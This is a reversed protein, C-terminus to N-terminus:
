KLIKMLELIQKDPRGGHEILKEILKPLTVRVLVGTSTVLSTLLEKDLDRFNMEKVLENIHETTNSYSGLIDNAVNRATRELKMSQLSDVEKEASSIDAIDIKQERVKDKIRKPSNKYRFLHTHIKGRRQERSKQFAGLLDKQEEKDPFQSLAIGQWVPIHDRKGLQGYVKEVKELISKDLNFSMQLYNRVTEYSMAKGQKSLFRAVSRYSDEQPPRHPPRKSIDFRKVSTAKSQLWDFALIIAEKKDQFDVDRHTLNERVMDILMMEDSFEKKSYIILNIKHEKGYVRIAAELRHHGYILELMGENERACINEHFKTQKYGEILKEIISTNLKGNNIFKKFPNPKIEKLAVQKIEPM